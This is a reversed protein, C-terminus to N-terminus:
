KAHDIERKFVTIFKETALCFEGDEKSLKNRDPRPTTRCLPRPIKTRRGKTRASPKSITEYPHM